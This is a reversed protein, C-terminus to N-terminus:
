SDIERKLRDGEELLRTLEGADGADLADRYRTLEEILGTVEASLNDRNALFLECWMGANLRAVRTLDKYSGASFGHHARATDSKVYANSVVHALQSTYAIIQDHEQPTTLTWTGFALPALLEQIRDITALQLAHPIDVDPVLVFPAGQFLDGRSAAYGSHETGAMPHGGMFTFGHERAIAFAPACLERKIGATDLVIAGPSLQSAHEELWTLCHAPYTTLVILEMTPLLEDELIGTATEICAFEAVSRTRNSVYVERGGEALGKTFSGGILGLGVV